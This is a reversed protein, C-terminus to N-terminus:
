FYTSTELLWLDVDHKPLSEEYATMAAQATRTVTQSTKTWFSTAEFKWVYSALLM